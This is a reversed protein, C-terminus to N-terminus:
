AGMESLADRKPLLARDHGGGVPLIEGSTFAGDGSPSPANVASSCTSQRQCAENRVGKRTSPRCTSNPSHRTATPFKGQLAPGPRIQGLHSDVRFLPCPHPFGPDPDGFFVAAFSQMGAQGSVHIGHRVNADGQESAAQGAEPNRPYRIAALGDHVSKWARWSSGTM